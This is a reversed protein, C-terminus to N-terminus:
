SHTSHECSPGELMKLHGEILLRVNENLSMTPVGQYLKIGVQLFGMFPRGGIGGIIMEEIKREKMTLVPEMCNSHGDNKLSFLKKINENNDLEIGVFYNSHGFHESLHDSIDPGDAAFGIIRKMNKLRKNIESYQNM